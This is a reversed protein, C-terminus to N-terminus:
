NRGRREARWSRYIGRIVSTPSASDEPTAESPQAPGPDPPDQSTRALEERLEALRERLFTAETEARAARETAAALQQGAEHLNGLQNLMRNWADLPVLMTGEALAAEAADQGSAAAPRGRDPDPVATGPRAKSAGPETELDRGLEAARRTIGSMSVMRLDRDGTREMYSPITQNRAWKRITSTPIGTAQSAERLTLWDGGDSTTDASGERHKSSRLLETEWLFAPDRSAV